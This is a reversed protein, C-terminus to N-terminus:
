LGARGTTARDAWRPPGFRGPTMMVRDAHRARGFRPGYFAHRSFGRAGHFHHRGGAFHFKGHGGGRHGGGFHFKGHGGGHHGGGHHGGGGHGHGGGGKALVESPTALAAAIVVVGAAVLAGVKIM